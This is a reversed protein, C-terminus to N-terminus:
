PAMFEYNGSQLQYVDVGSPNRLLRVGPAHEARQGSEEVTGSGNKTALDLEATCNIPVTVSLHTGADDRHWQCIIRGSSSDYIAGSSQLQDYIGPRLLIHRFGFSEPAIGASDEYLWRATWVDNFHPNSALGYALDLRDADTLALLLQSRGLDGMVISQNNETHRLLQESANRRSEDPILDWQLALAYGSQTHIGSRTGINVYRDQFQRSLEEFMRRYDEADASNGLQAAMQSMLDSVHAAYALAIMESDATNANPGDSFFRDHHAYDMWHERLDSMYGELEAFHRRVVRRDDYMRLLEWLVIPEADQASDRVELEHDLPSSAGVVGGVPIQVQDSISDLLRYYLPTLNEAYAGSAATLFRDSPWDAGHNREAWLSQEARNNLVQNASTFWGTREMDPYVCVAQFQLADPMAGLGTVLLYRFHRQTLKPEFTFDGKYGAVYVDTDAPSDSGASTPQNSYRIEILQGRKAIAHIRVHGVVSQGFDVRYVDPITESVDKAEIVEQPRLPAGHDACLLPEPGNLGVKPRIWDHGRGRYLGQDWADLDQRDDYVDGMIRDGQRIPGLAMRWKDDTAICVTTGDAFQMELQGFVRPDGGYNHTRHTTPWYGAYLGDSLIIGMANHGLHLQRTVDYTQYYVRKRYDSVGPSLMDPSVSQGNIHLEYDGLATVYFTARAIKKELLFERRLYVAPDIPLNVQTPQPWPQRGVPGLGQVKKWTLDEFDVKQWGRQEATTSKWQLGADVDMPLGQAFRVEMRGALAPYNGDNIVRVAIINEGSHLAYNVDRCYLTQRDVGALVHHGNIWAEFRDSATMALTASQVERGAPLTFRGRFYRTRSVIPRINEDTWIWQCGVLHMPPILGASDPGIWDAKWDARQLLGASWMAPASWPGAENAGNWVRVQWWAPQGSELPLGNYEIQTTAHSLVKNSNWLDAHGNALLEASTAVRVEYATQIQGRVNEDPSQLLWAFRPIEEGIGLPQNRYETTLNVPTLVQGLCSALGVYVLGLAFWFKM